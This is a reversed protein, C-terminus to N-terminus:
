KTEQVCRFGIVNDRFYPLLFFRFSVASCYAAGSASGGRVVRYPNYQDEINWAHGDGPANEYNQHYWDECWEWVNGSLDFIGLENPTKTGVEHSKGQSNSSYWAVADVNNAGSYVFGHSRNGGHAAYEYEAETPLRVTTGAQDSVWRCYAVADNWSVNIVPMNGRGWGNDSPKKTKTADCYKDYQDFTIETASMYFSAVHVAHIPKTYNYDNGGMQFSGGQVFIWHINGIINQPNSVVPPSIPKTTITPVERRGNSISPVGQRKEPVKPQPLNVENTAMNKQTTTAAPTPLNQSETEASTTNSGIPELASQGHSPLPKPVNTPNNLTASTSGNKDPPNPTLGDKGTQWLGWRALVFICLLTVIIALPILRQAISRAGLRGTSKEIKSPPILDHDSSIAPQVVSDGRSFTSSRQASIRKSTEPRRATSKAESSTKNETSSAPLPVVNPYKSRLLARALEAGTAFRDQPKKALCKLVIEELWTPVSPSIQRPPVPSSNIIKNVTVFPNGGSFPVKGTLAEYLVIGLCYINSSRNLERGEAQEPSMYELAGLVKTTQSTGTGRVSHDIWFDTLVPRGTDTVIVNSSRIDKHIIGKGHAYALAETVPVIIDVAEEPELRGKWMIMTHLDTGELFEVAIFHIGNECGEDFIKSINPHSLEAAAKAVSHFLDVYEQNQALHPPLIELAVEKNFKRDIARYVTCIEGKGLSEVIEYKSSLASKFNLTTEKKQAESLEPSTWGCNECELAGSKLEANCDPCLKPEIPVSGEDLARDPIDSGILTM